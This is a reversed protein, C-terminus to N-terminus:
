NESSDMEIRFLGNSFENLLGTIDKSGQRLRSILNGEAGQGKQEEQVAQQNGPPAQPQQPQGFGMNQIDATVTLLFVSAAVALGVKLSYVMLQVQKSTEKIKVAAQVDLQRTRSIIEEKLYKPPEMLPTGKGLSGNPAQGLALGEEDLFGEEMWNAFQGACFTCAGIHTFFDTEEPTGLKGEQWDCFLDRSIHAPKQAEMQINGEAQEKKERIKIM